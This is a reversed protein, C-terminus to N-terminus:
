GRLAEPPLFSMRSLRKSTARVARSTPPREDVNRLHHSLARAIQLVGPERLLGTHTGDIEYTPCADPILGAWGNGADVESLGTDLGDLARFLVVRGNYPAVIRDYGEAARRFMDDRVDAIPAPDSSPAGALSQFRRRLTDKVQSGFEVPSAALKRLHRRAREIASPPRIARPLIADFLAVLAVQEGAHVLQQAMEYAIIGGFSLGGLLYPGHPRTRQILAIYDRAMSPVDFVVNTGGAEARGLAEAEIPLFTGYVRRDPEMARALKAYLEVGCICFLPVGPPNARNLPVLTPIARSGGTLLLRAVDRVTPAAFLAGLEIPTRARANIRSLLRIALLSHGGLEFFSEDAGVEERGLVEAFLAAVVSEM